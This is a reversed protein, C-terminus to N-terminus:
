RVLEIHHDHTGTTAVALTARTDRAVDVKLRAPCGKRYCKYYLRDCDGITVEDGGTGHMNKEGYKKWLMHIQKKARGTHNLDRVRVTPDAIGLQDQFEIPEENVTASHCPSQPPQSQTQPSQAFNRHLVWLVTSPQLLHTASWIDVMTQQMQITGFSCNMGFPVQRLFTSQLSQLGATFDGNGVAGVLAEFSRNSWHICGTSIDMQAMADFSMGVFLEAYQQTVQTDLTLGVAQGM